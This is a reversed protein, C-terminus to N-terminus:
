PVHEDVRDQVQVLVRPGLYVDRGEAVEVADRAPQDGVVQLGADVLGNEVVRFDVLRIGFEGGVPRQHIRRSGQFGLVLGPQLPGHGIDAVREPASPLEGRDLVHLGLGDGPGLLDGPAALAPRQAPRGRHGHQARDLGGGQQRQRGGREGQGAPRRGRGARVDVDLDAAGEVGHGPLQNSALDIDAGGGRHHLDKEVAVQDLGM